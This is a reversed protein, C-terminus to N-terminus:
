GSEHNQRGDCRRLARLLRAGVGVPDLALPNGLGAGVRAELLNAALLALPAPHLLRVAALRAVQGVGGAARAPVSAADKVSPSLGPVCAGPRKRTQPLNSKKRGVRRIGAMVAATDNSCCNRLPAPKKAWM